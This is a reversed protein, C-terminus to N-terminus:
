KASLARRVSPQLPEPSDSFDPYRYGLESTLDFQLREALEVTRAVADADDPFRELAEGPALLVSEHNGRRQAASGDLSTRHRVAVLVDQLPGRRPHHAHADGTAITRVGLTEALDRLITRRRRDGREYPRQLEIFFRDRGFARALCAAANPNRLALGNRACGSLCVLGDNLKELLSQELGPEGPPTGTVYVSKIVAVSM